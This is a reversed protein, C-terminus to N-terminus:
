KQQKQIEEILRKLENTNENIAQVIAGYKGFSKKSEKTSERVFRTLNNSPEKM